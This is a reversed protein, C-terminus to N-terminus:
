GAPTPVAGAADAPAVASGADLARLVPSADIRAQPVGAARARVVERQAQATDGLVALAQAAALAVEGPETGAARARALLALAADAEGLNARYWAQLSLAQADDAQIDSYQAAQRAARRYPERAQAATAPSAALADGLNGWVRYDGPDLQSARRYLGAAEAYEGQQYRLTGLNSLAAVSPRLELARRFAEDAHRTEGAALYLGGLSSWMGDSDPQIRVARRFSEIADALDGRLYHHYGLERYVESDGPRLRRAREFHELAEADRGQASANRALGIHAAPRLAPDQLAAEYHSAAAAHDGRARHLEGLALSVERLGPDMRAARACATSAREYAAAERGNEFRSIEARCIGAQARAFGPDSTLARRFSAIALASAGEETSADLHQLGQLYADYADVDSTPWLRRNLAPQAAPLVGPMVGPLANVVQRAIETQLAFVDDTERDYSDSWLTFGTATDALRASIRIRRGDRRVSADLVTAVGLSRGLSKVDVPQPTAAAGSPRAAVQLGPVGALADHMEVALGQAFYADNRDASLSTFPLVAISAPRARTGPAGSAALGDPAAPASAGDVPARTTWAWWAAAAVIVAALGPVVRRWGAARRPVPAVARPHSSPLIPASAPALSPAVRGAAIAGPGAALAGGAGSAVPAADHPHEQAHQPRATDPLPADPGPDKGSAPGGAGVARDADDDAARPPALCAPAQDPDRLEGVFRYGLAHQTQIYRPHHPDDGLVHRLQAIARTLVGPTVHRHGWVADLLQDRGLLEGPHRLLLLLVAFAKPELALPADDRCITHAGADVVVGDFHYRLGQPGAAAAGESPDMMFVECNGRVKAFADGFGREAM